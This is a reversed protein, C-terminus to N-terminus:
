WQREPVRGRHDPLATLTATYDQLMSVRTARRDREWHMRIDRLYSLARHEQGNRIISMLPGSAGQAQKQRWELHHLEALALDACDTPLFSPSLLRPIPLNCVDESLQFHLQPGWQDVNKYDIHCPLGGSAHALHLRTACNRIRWVDSKRPENTPRTFVCEFGFTLWTDANVRSPGDYVRSPRFRIEHRTSWVWEASGRDIGRKLEDGIDALRASYNKDVFSEALSVFADVELSYAALDILVSM